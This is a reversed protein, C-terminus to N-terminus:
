HSRERGGDRESIDEFRDDDVPMVDSIDDGLTYQEPKKDQEEDIEHHLYDNREDAINDETPFIDENIRSRVHANMIMGHSIGAIQALRREFGPILDNGFTLMRHMFLAPLFVAIMTGLVAVAAFMSRMIEVM